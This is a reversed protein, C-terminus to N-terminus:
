MEDYVIKVLALRNGKLSPVILSRGGTQIAERFRLKLNQYDTSMLNKREKLGRGTVIYESVTNESRIEDNFLIRLQAPLEFVFFSSYMADDDQSYQRKHLVESWHLQGDPHISFAVIDEFYYDVWRRSYASSASAFSPRRSYEKSLEGFVVLGGDSRPQLHRIVLDRLGKKKNVKKGYIDQLLEDSFRITSLAYDTASKFGVDFTKIGITKLDSKESFSCSGVISEDGDNFEFRVDYCLTGGLPIIIRNEASDLPVIELRHSKRQTWRNDSEFILYGRGENSVLTQRFDRSISGDELEQVHQWDVTLSDVDLGWASISRNRETTFIVCKKHNKSKALFYDPTNLISEFTILTDSQVVQANEDYKRGVIFLTMGERFHYFITMNTEGSVLGIIGIRKREFQLEQTWKKNLAEDFGVIDQEFVRDRFLLAKGNDLSLVEYRMDSRLPIDESVIVSQCSLTEVIMFLISIITFRHM